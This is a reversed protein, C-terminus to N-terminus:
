PGYLFFVNVKQSRYKSSKTFLDTVSYFSMNHIAPGTQLGMLVPHPDGKRRIGKLM